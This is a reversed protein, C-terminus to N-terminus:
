SIYAASGYTFNEHWIGELVDNPLRRKVLNCLAEVISVSGTEKSEIVKMWFAPKYRVVNGLIFLTSYLITLSEHIGSEHPRVYYRGAITGKQVVGFPPASTLANKSRFGFREPLEEKQFGSAFEPFVQLFENIDGRRSFSIEFIGQNTLNPEGYLYFCHSPESYHRRYLKSLDPIIRILEKFRLVIGFRPVNDGVIRALNPLVGDNTVAFEQEIEWKLPNDSYAQLETRRPESAISPRTSLGHYRLKSLDINSDNALILAKSLAQAGYFQLLPKTALGIQESAQFYEDAQQVCSAIEYAQQKVSESQAWPSTRNSKILGTLLGYVNSSSRFYRLQHWIETLPTDTWVHM